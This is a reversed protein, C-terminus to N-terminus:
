KPISSSSNNFLTPIHCINHNYCPSMDNHRLIFFILLLIIGIVKCSPSEGRSYRSNVSLSLSTTGGGGSSSGSPDPSGVYMDSGPSGPGLPGGPTVVKRKLLHARERLFIEFCM